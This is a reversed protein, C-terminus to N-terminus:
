LEHEHVLFIRAEDVLDTDEDEGGFAVNASALVELLVDDGLETRRAEAPPVAEVPGNRVASPTKTMAMDRESRGAILRLQRGGTAVNSRCDLMKLTLGVGM